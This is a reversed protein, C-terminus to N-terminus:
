EALITMVRHVIKLKETPLKKITAILDEQLESKTKQHDFDLLASLPVNLSDAVQRLVQYSPNAKGRELESIHRASIGSMESLREQSLRRSSRLEGIRKGLLILDNSEM